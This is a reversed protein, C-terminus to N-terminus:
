AAAAEFHPISSSGLIGLHLWKHQVITPIEVKFEEQPYSETDEGMSIM